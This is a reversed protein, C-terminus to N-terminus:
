KGKQKKLSEQRRHEMEQLELMMADVVGGVDTAPPPPMSPASRQPAAKTTRHDDLRADQAHTKRLFKAYTEAAKARLSEAPATGPDAEINFVNRLFEDGGPVEGTGNAIRTGNRIQAGSAIFCGNGITAGVIYAHPGVICREGITCPFQIASGGSAKIVAHEMVVTDAGVKLPAGESVLIAGHLIACGAGVEIDGSVTASPAVYASSHIQPKKTASSYIM